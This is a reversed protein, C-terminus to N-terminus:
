CTTGIFLTDILKKKCFDYILLSYNTFFSLFFTLFSLFFKKWTKMRVNKKINELKKQIEKERNQEATTLKTEIQNFKESKRSVKVTEITQKVEVQRENQSSFLLVFFYM